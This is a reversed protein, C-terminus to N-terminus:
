LKGELSYAYNNRLTKGFINTFISIYTIYVFLHYVYQKTEVRKM